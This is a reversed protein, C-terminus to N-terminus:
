NAAKELSSLDWIQLTGDCAVSALRYGDPSWALRDIMDRHGQLSALPTNTVM